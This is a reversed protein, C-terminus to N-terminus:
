RSHQWLSWVAVLGSGVRKDTSSVGLKWNGIAALTKCLQTNSCPWRSVCCSQPQMPLHHHWACSCHTGEFWGGGRASPGPQLLCRPGGPVVGQTPTQKPLVAATLHTKPILFEPMKRWSEWPGALGSLVRTQARKPDLQFVPPEM